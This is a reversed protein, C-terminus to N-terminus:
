RLGCALNRVSNTTRIAKVSGACSIAKWVDIHTRPPRHLLGTRGGDIPLEREERATVSPKSQADPLREIQEDPQAPVALHPEAGDRAVPELPERPRPAPHGLGPRHRPPHRLPRQHPLGELAA